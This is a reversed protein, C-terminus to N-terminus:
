TSKCTHFTRIIPKHFCNVTHPQTIEANIIFSNFIGLVPIFGHQYKQMIRPSAHFHPAIKGPFHHFDGSHIGKQIIPASVAFRQRKVARLAIFVVQVIFGIFEDANHVPHINLFCHQITVAITRSDSQNSCGVIGVPKICDHQLTRVTKYLFFPFGSNPFIAVSGSM